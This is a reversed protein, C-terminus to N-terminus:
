EIRMYYQGRNVETPGLTAMYSYADEIDTDSIGESRFVMTMTEMEVGFASLRYVRERLTEMIVGLTSGTPISGVACLTFTEREGM